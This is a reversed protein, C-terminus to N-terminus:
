ENEDLRNLYVDIRNLVEDRESSIGQCKDAWMRGPHCVDWDSKAQNYRGRGPDHNGFGDVVTNWLPRYIRILAAEVTGILDTEKDELIMFRCSFDDMELGAGVEISRGHERLRSHLEYTKAGSDQM